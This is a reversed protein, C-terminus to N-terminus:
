KSVLMALANSKVLAIVELAFIEYDYTGIYETALNTIKLMLEAQGDKKGKEYANIIYNPDFEEM